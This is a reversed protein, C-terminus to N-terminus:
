RGGRPAPLPTRTAAVNAAGKPVSPMLNEFM